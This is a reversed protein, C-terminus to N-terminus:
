GADDGYVLVKCIKYFRVELFGGPGKIEQTYDEM